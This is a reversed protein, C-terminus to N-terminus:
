LQGNSITVHKSVVYMLCVVSFHFRVVRLTLVFPAVQALNKVKRVVDVLVVLVLVTVVVYANVNRRATTQKNFSSLKM